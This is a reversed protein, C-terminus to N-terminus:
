RSKTIIFLRTNRTRRNRILSVKHFVFRYSIIFEEYFRFTSDLLHFIVFFCEYLFIRICFLLSLAAPVAREKNNSNSPSKTDRGLQTIFINLEVIEEITHKYQLHFSHFFFSLFTNIGHGFSVIGCISSSSVLKM